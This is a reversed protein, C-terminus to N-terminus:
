YTLNCVAMGSQFSSILTSCSTGELCSIDSESPSHSCIADCESQASSSPAGCTTAKLVCRSSCDTAGGSTTAGSTVSAGTTVTSQCVITESAKPPRCVGYNTGIDDTMGISLDCTQNRPCNLATTCGSNCEKSPTFCYNAGKCTSSGCPTSGDTSQNVDVTYCGGGQAGSSTSGSGGAGTDATNCGVVLLAGVISVVTAISKM